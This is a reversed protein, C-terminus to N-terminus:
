KRIYRLVYGENVSSQTKRTKRLLAAKVLLTFATEGGVRSLWIGLFTNRLQYTGAALRCLPHPCEASVKALM